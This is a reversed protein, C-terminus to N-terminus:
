KEEDNEKRRVMKLNNPHHLGSLDVKVERGALRAMVEETESAGVRVHCQKTNEYEKYGIVYGYSSCYSVLSGVPFVKKTEKLEM